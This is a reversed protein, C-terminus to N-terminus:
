FVGWRQLQDSFFTVLGGLALIVLIGGRVRSSQKDLRDAIEAIKTVDKYITDLQIEVKTLRDREVPTMGNMGNEVM